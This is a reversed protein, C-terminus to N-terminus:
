DVEVFMDLLRRLRSVGVGRRLLRHNLVIALVAEILEAKARSCSSEKEKAQSRKFTMRELPEFPLKAMWSPVNGQDPFVATRVAEEYTHAATAVVDEYAQVAASVAERVAAAHPSAMYQELAVHFLRDSEKKDQLYRRKDFIYFSREFIIVVALHGIILLNM